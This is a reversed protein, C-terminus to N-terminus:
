VGHKCLLFTGTLDRAIVLHGEAADLIPIPRGGAVGAANVVGDIRGHEETITDVVAAVAPEDCVDLPCVDTSEVLDAGVVIAGDRTLREVTARGIGSAAGTVLVVKDTMM